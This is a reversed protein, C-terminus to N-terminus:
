IGTAYDCTGRHSCSIHCINGIAGFESGGDNELAAATAYGAPLECDASIGTPDNNCPMGVRHMRTNVLNNTFIAGKWSKGNDLKYACMTEDEGVAATLPDDGSPCREAFPPPLYHSSLMMSCRIFNPACVCPVTLALGARQKRTAPAWDWVGRATAFVLTSGIRMGHAGM